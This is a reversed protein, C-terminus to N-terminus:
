AEVLMVNSASTNSSDIQKKQCAYCGLAIAALVLVGVVGGVLWVWIRSAAPSGQGSATGDTRGEAEESEKQARADVYYAGVTDCAGAAVQLEGETDGVKRFSVTSRPEAVMYDACQGSPFFVNTGPASIHIKVAGFRPGRSAWDKVPKSLDLVHNPALMHHLCLQDPDGPV